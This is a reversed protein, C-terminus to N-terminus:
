DKLSAIGNKCRSIMESTNKYSYNLNIGIKHRTWFGFLDNIACIDTRVQFPPNFFDSNKAARSYVILEIHLTSFSRISILQCRKRATNANVHMSKGALTRQATGARTPFAHRANFFFRSAGHM